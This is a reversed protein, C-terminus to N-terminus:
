MRDPFVHWIDKGIGNKPLEHGLLVSSPIGSLFTVLIAYDDSYLKGGVLYCSFMRLAVMLGSIVGM